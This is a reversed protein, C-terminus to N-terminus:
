LCQIWAARRNEVSPLKQETKFAVALPSFIRGDGLLPPAVQCMHDWWRKGEGTQRQRMTQGLSIHLRDFPGFARYM